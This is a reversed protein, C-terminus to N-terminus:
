TIIFKYFKIVCYTSSYYIKFPPQMFGFVVVFALLVEREVRREGEEDVRRERWLIIIHKVSSVELGNHAAFFKQLTAHTSKIRVTAREPPFNPHLLDHFVANSVDNGLLSYFFYFGGQYKSDSL